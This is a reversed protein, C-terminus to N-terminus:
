RGYPNRPADVLLGNQRNGAGSSRLTGSRLSLLARQSPARKERVPAAGFRCDQHIALYQTPSTASTACPLRELRAATGSSDAVAGRRLRAPSAHVLEPRRDRAGRRDSRLWFARLRVNEPKDTELYGVESAADLRRCHEQMILSGIGQRQL